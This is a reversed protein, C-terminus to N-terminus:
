PNGQGTGSSETAPAMRVEATAKRVKIKRSKLDITVSEGDYKLSELQSAVAAAGAMEAHADGVMTAVMTEESFTAKQSCSATVHLPKGDKTTTDVVFNVPGRAELSVVRSKELDAIVIVTSATMSANYDGKIDVRVNGTMETVGTDLDVELEDSRIVAVSGKKVHQACVVAVLALAVVLFLAIAWRRRM